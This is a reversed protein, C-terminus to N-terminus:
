DNITFAQPFLFSKVEKLLIFTSFFLRLNNVEYYVEYELVYKFFSRISYLTVPRRNYPLFCFGNEQLFHEWKTENM